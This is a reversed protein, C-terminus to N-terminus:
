LVWKKFLWIIMASFAAILVGCMFLWAFFLLSGIFLEKM